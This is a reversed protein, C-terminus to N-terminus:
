AWVVPNECLKQFVVPCLIHIKKGMGWFESTHSGVLIAM